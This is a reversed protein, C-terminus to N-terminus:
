VRFGQAKSSAPCKSLTNTHTKEMPDELGLHGLLLYLITYYLITYYLITYYGYDENYNRKQKQNFWNGYDGNYNRKQTKPKKPKPNLTKLTKPNKPNKPNLTLPRGITKMTTGQKTKPQVLEINLIGFPLGFFSSCHLSYTTYYIRKPGM